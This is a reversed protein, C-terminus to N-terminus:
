QCLHKPASICKQKYVVAGQKCFDPTNDPLLACTVIYMITSNNLTSFRHKRFFNHCFCAHVSIFMQWVCMCERVTNCFHNKRMRVKAVLWFMRSISATVYGVYNSKICVCKKWSVNLDTGSLPIIIM